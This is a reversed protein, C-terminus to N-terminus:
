GIRCTISSTFATCNFRYVERADGGEIHFAASTTFVASTFDPKLVAAWTAGEDVSRELTVSGTGISITIPERVSPARFPESLGTAEFTISYPPRNM